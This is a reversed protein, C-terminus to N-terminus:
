NQFSNKSMYLFTISKEILDSDSIGLKKRLDNLKKKWQPIKDEAIIELEMALPFGAINEINITINEFSYSFRKKDVVCFEKFGISQLIKRVQTINEIKSEYEYFANHDDEKKLVKVTIESSEKNNIVSSRLRLAYSGTTKQKVEDFTKKDNPCFWYDILHIENIFKANLDSLANKFNDINQIFGRLEIEM